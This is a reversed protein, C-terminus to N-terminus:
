TRARRARRTGEGASNKETGANKPFQAAQGARQVARELGAVEEPDLHRYRGEPLGGLDLNALKMRKMKEVPHGMVLLTRRLLDRRAEALTVEYWPNAAHRGAAHPARLPHVKASVKQALRKLEVEGLRAKVKIWYTQPLRAAAKLVRNALEGDSTLLLLGSAAYDLRGVPFVRGPVGGLYNRLSKRGEPDAMTSVVQPPKNLLLYSRAAASRVLKGAAEIRDREPDAKSGLETVVAGNVRVQGSLILQEAHRRSAIGARAIIKQLRELM